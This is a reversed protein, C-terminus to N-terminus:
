EDEPLASPHKALPTVHIDMFPYLPLSSLRRHLEDHDAVDYLTYNAYRGVVRWMGRVAGDRQYAQSVAKERVQLEALKEPDVGRTNLEIHVLYLV